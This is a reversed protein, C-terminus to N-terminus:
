GEISVVLFRGYEGKRAPRFDGLGIQLGLRELLEALNTEGFGTGLMQSEWRFDFALRWPFVLARARLVGQRQVIARQVDVKYEKTGFPVMLPRISVGGAVLPGLALKKNMPSKWGACAQVLGSKINKAPFALSTKDETWYCSAAAEEEPQPIRKAASKNAAQTLMGAPNHLLIGPELGEIVVKCVNQHLEYM